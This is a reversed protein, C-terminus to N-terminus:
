QIAKGMDYAKKLAPHDKITNPGDVGGAFVSGAFHSKPYCAVWGKLGNIARHDVGDENEAATSLLYVDRFQYDTNMYLVKVIEQGKLFIINDDFIETVEMRGALYDKEEQVYKYAYVMDKTYVHICVDYDLGRKYLESAKEFSIGEFHLLKSGKNETIAGGNYSIVYENELDCLGLDKLTGGVTNFGRGTAPVFKVGLEKAKQIAEVNDKSITRDDSLLTEDLDCAIIKYM